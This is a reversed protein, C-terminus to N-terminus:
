VRTIEEVKSIVDEAFKQLGSRVDPFAIVGGVRSGDVGGAAKQFGDMLHSFVGEKRIDDGTAISVRFEREDDWFIGNVFAEEDIGPIAKVLTLIGANIQDDRAGEVIDRIELWVSSTILNRPKESAKDECLVLRKLGNTGPDIDIIFGDFGKDAKRVHPPTMHAAPMQLRVAIWSMHQFLLGDRHWVAADIRNQASQRVDADPSGLLALDEPSGAQLKRIINQAMKGPSRHVRPELKDIVRQVNKEQQLYLYAVAAVLNERDVTQISWECFVCETSTEPNFSIPMSLCKSPVQNLQAIELGAM